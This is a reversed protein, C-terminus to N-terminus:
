WATRGGQMAIEMLENALHLEADMGSSAIPATAPCRNCGSREAIARLSGRLTLANTLRTM